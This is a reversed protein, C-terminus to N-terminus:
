SVDRKESAPECTVNIPTMTRLRGEPSPAIVSRRASPVVLFVAIALAGGALMLTCRLNM